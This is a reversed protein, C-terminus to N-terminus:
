SETHRGPEQIKEEELYLELGQAIRIVFVLKRGMQLAEYSAPAPEIRNCNEM